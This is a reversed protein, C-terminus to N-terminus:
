DRRLRFSQSSSIPSTCKWKREEIKCPFHGRPCHDTNWRLISIKFITNKRLLVDKMQQKAGESWKFCIFIMQRLSGWISFQSVGKGRKKGLLRERSKWWWYQCVVRSRRNGWVSRPSGSLLGANGRMCFALGVRFIQGLALRRPFAHWIRYNAM